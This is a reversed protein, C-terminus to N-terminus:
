LRASTQSLHIRVLRIEKYSYDKGLLDRVPRLQLGEAKQFAEKIKQYRASIPLLHEINLGEDAEILNEIHGLITSESLGRRAAIEGISLRQLLFDKTAEM